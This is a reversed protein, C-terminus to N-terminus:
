KLFTAALQSIKEVYSKANAIAREKSPEFQSVSFLREVGIRELERSTLLNDGCIIWLRKRHKLCIEVVGDLLKGSISQGDVRGEGTIVLDAEDVRDEIKMFDFLVRWGSMLTANLFANLAFGMGGAAGAGSNDSHDYGLYRASIRAFNQVGEELIVVDEPKAGKQPGYVRSAGYIGTLPNNVDCAVEIKLNRIYPAVSSDDIGAVNLLDGGTMYHGSKAPNGDKDIFVYGLAELMGAGADNTSSGGIGMLIKSYGLKAVANIVMGLGYSSTKLPDREQKSLFNLGTSKAMECLVKNGTRLVPVEIKRGLPDVASVFFKEDGLHEVAEITGEGGDALPIQEIEIEPLHMRLGASIAASAERATLSGKFKDVIILVKTPM